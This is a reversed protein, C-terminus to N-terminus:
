KGKTSLEKAMDSVYTNLMVGLEAKVLEKMIGFNESNGRCYIEYNLTVPTPDAEVVKIQAERLIRKTQVLETHIRQM